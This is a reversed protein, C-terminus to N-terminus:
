PSSFNPPFKREWNEFIRIKWKTSGVVFNRAILIIKGRYTGVEASFRTKKERVYYM